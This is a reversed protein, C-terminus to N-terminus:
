PTAGFLERQLADHERQLEALQSKILRFRALKAFRQAEAVIVLTTTGDFERPEAPTVRLEM